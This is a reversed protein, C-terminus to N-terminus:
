EQHLHLNVLTEAIRAGAAQSDDRGAEALHDLFMSVHATMADTDEGIEDAHASVLEAFRRDVAEFDTNALMVGLLAGLQRLHEARQAETMQAAHAAAAAHDRGGSEQALAPAVAVVSLAAAVAVGAVRASRMTFM